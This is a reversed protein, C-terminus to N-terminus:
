SRPPTQNPGPFMENIQDFLDPNLNVGSARVNEELQTPSSAGVILSDVDRRQLLAALAIQAATLNCEKGFEALRDVRSLVDTDSLHDRMFMNLSEISGRSGEPVEGGSYKGTLIGQALPSFVAVGLGHNECVSLVREEINRNLLSYIPQDVAPPIWGHAKCKSSADAIQDATWQSVGWHMIKGMHILDQMAQITEVLPTNEDYRHCYYIDVYEQQLRRLSDHISDFIHKRSLGRDNVGDGMPFYVKTALVYDQRRAIGPLVRGLLEEAKGKAYVDATDVYNIGLELARAVIRGARDLDVQSAFTLWSGYAIESVFLGTNGLKRYKM